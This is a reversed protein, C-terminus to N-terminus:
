LLVDAVADVLQARRAADSRVSRSLELHVFTAGVARAHAAQVNSTGALDDCDDGDYVCTEFDRGDLVSALRRVLPSAAPEASSLVVDTASDRRDEAFGHIQVVVTGAGVVARDVAAFVSDARHAVDAAGGGAERHATAVFLADADAAEFLAVGVDETRLDARPHPVEVVLRPPAGAGRKVAYLGLGLPPGDGRRESVVAVDADAPGRAETVNVHDPVAVDADTDLLARVLSGAAAAAPASPPRYDGSAASPGASVSAAVLDGVTEHAPACSPLAVVALAIMAWRTSM